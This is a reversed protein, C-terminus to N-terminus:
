TLATPQIRFLCRTYFNELSICAFGNEEQLVWLIAIARWGNLTPIYARQTRGM